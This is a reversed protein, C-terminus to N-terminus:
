MFIEDIVEDIANYRDKRIPVEIEIPEEEHIEGLEELLESITPRHHQLWLESLEKFLNTDIIVGLTKDNDYIMQPENACSAMVEVFRTQAESIQWTKM